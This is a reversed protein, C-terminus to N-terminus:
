GSQHVHVSRGRKIAQKHQIIITRASYMSIIVRLSTNKWGEWSFKLVKVVQRLYTRSGKQQLRLIKM